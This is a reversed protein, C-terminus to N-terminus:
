GGSYSNGLLRRRDAPIFLDPAGEVQIKGVLLSLDLDWDFRRRWRYREDANDLALSVEHDTWSNVVRLQSVVMSLEGHVSARGVHQIRHCDPCLAVLRALRQAASTSSVEFHWLEHCDPRRSRDTDPDYGPQGCVECRNGAAECVPIRLRDWDAKPLIGRLNSGWVNEPLMDPYILGPGIPLADIYLAKTAPIASKRRQHRNRRGFSPLKMM